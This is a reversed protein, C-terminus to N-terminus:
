AAGDEHIRRLAVRAEMEREEALADDAIAAARCLAVTVLMTFAWLAILVLALM